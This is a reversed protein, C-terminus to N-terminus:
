RRKSAIVIGAAAVALVAVTLALNDATSPNNPAATSVETLTVEISHVAIEPSTDNGSALSAVFMITEGKNLKIDSGSLITTEHGVSPSATAFTYTDIVNTGKLAEIKYASGATWMILKSVDATFSYTGAVPATFIIASSYSSVPAMDIYSTRDTLGHDPVSPVQSQAFVYKAGNSTWWAQWAPSWDTAKPANELPDINGEADIAALKFQGSTKKTHDCDFTYKDGAAAASASICMVVALMAVVLVSFIRKFTKM